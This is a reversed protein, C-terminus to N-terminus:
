QQLEELGSVLTFLAETLVDALEPASLQDLQNRVYKAAEPYGDANLAKRFMSTYLVLRTKPVEASDGRLWDINGGRAQLALREDATFPNGDTM